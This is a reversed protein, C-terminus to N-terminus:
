NDFDDRLRSVLGATVPERDDLRRAGAVFDLVPEVNMLALARNFDPALQDFFLRAFIADREFVDFVGVPLADGAVVANAPGVVQHSPDAVAFVGGALHQRFERTTRLTRPASDLAM